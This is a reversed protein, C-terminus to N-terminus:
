NVKVKDSNRCIDTDKMETAALAPDRMWRAYNAADAAIQAGGIGAVLSSQADYCALAAKAVPDDKKTTFTSVLLARAETANGQKCYGEAQKGIANMENYFTQTPQQGATKQTCSLISGILM